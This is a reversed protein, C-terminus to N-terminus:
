RDREMDRRRPNRSRAGGRTSRRSIEQLHPDSWAGKEMVVALWTKEAMVSVAERLKGDPRDHLAREKVKLIESVQM